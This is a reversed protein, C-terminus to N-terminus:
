LFVFDAGGGGFRPARQIKRGIFCSVQDEILALSRRADFRNFSYWSLEHDGTVGRTLRRGQAARERKEMGDWGADIFFLARSMM